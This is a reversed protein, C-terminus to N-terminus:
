HHEHVTLVTASTENTKTQLVLIRKVLNHKFSFFHEESKWTEM